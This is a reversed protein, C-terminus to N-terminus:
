AGVVATTVGGGWAKNDSTLEIVAVQQGATATIASAGDWTTWTTGVTISDGPNPLTISEGAQTAYTHGARLPPMVALSTKGTSAATSTVQLPYLVPGKVVTPAGNLAITCSFPANETAEGGLYGLGGVINQLTCGWEVSTRQTLAGTTDMVDIRVVTKLDNGLSYALSCVYEQAPDGLVRRGEVDITPARGTQENAAYGGGCMFQYQQTTDNANYTFSTVGECLRAWVNDGDPGPIALYVRTDSVLALNLPTVTVDAPSGNVPDYINPM